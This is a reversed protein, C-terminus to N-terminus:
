ACLCTTVVEEGQSPRARWSVNEEDALFVVSWHAFSQDLVGFMDVVVIGLDREYELRSDRLINFV